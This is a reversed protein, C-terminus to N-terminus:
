NRHIVFQSGPEVCVDGDASDTVTVGTLDRQRRAEWPSYVAATSPGTSASTTSRSADPMAGGGTKFQIGDYTSDTFIDTDRITVGPIDPGRRLSCPSPAM